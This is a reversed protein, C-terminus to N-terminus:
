LVLAHFGRRERPSVHRRLALAVLVVIALAVALLSPGANIRLAAALVARAVAAAPALM